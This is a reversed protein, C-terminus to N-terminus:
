LLPNIARLRKEAMLIYEPNKEIGIFNRGLAKAAVATTGSGFFPDLVTGKEPCGAKIPKILLKVPFTAFHAEPFPESVLTWVDGPNKGKPNRDYDNGAPRRTGFRRANEELVRKKTGEKSNYQRSARARPSGMAEANEGTYKSNYGFERERTIGNPRKENLEYPIRIADGDFYYKRNKVFFFVQEYKNSFRDLVSSPMANKKHWIITNRLIWGRDTMALAFRSPIQLLCKEYGKSNESKMKRAKAQSFYQGDTQKGQSNVSKEQGAGTGGYTDGLNVFCTGEPKLVRKVEDFVVCLKEIFEQFTPELGIQGEYGYDRLNWYPPSTIVCDVSENPLKRLEELADGCIIKNSPLNYNFCKPCNWEGIEVYTCDPNQHKM